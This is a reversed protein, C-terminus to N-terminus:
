SKRCGAWDSDVYVEIVSPVYDEFLIREVLRPLGKLVRCLRAVAKADAVTPKPM